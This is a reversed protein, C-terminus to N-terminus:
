RRRPGSLRSALAVFRVQSAREFDSLDKETIEEPTVGAERAAAYKLLYLTAARVEADSFTMAIRGKAIRLSYLLPLAATL